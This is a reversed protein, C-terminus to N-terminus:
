QPVFWCLASSRVLADIEGESVQRVLRGDAPLPAPPRRPQRRGTQAGAVRLQHFPHRRLPAARARFHFLLSFPLFPAPPSFPTSILNRLDVDKHQPPLFVYSYTNNHLFRKDTKSLLPLDVVNCCCSLLHKVFSFLLAIARYVQPLKPCYSIIM